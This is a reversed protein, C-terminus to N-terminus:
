RARRKRSSTAAKPPEVLPSAGYAMYLESFDFPLEYCIKLIRSVDDFGANPGGCTEMELTFPTPWVWQEGAADAVIDLFQLTRFTRAFGELPGKTEGYTVNIKTEPQDPSRTYPALVTDWSRSARTFEFKCSERRAEPLKTQDALDKFKVPDSGYMLCVIQYARQQNLGHEDYYLVPAGMQQDRRDSYFWGKSAEVLVRVSLSSGIKLLRLVAFTDAADEERGLIPLDQEHIHVHGMEHLLIFFTNGVVFEVRDIRQQLNLGKFRPNSELGRAVDEIMAQYADSRLAARPLNPAPGTQALIPATGAALLGLLALGSAGRRTVATSWARSFYESLAM